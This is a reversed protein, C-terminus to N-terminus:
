VGLVGIVGPFGENKLVPTWGVYTRSNRRQGVRCAAEELMQAAITCWHNKGGLGPGELATIVGHGTTTMGRRLLV